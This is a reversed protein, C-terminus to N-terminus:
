FMVKTKGVSFDKQCKVVGRLVKGWPKRFSRRGVLKSVTYIRCETKPFPFLKNTRKCKGCILRAEGTLARPLTKRHM